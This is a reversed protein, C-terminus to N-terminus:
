SLGIHNLGITTTFLAFFALTSYRIIQQQVKQKFEIIPQMEGKFAILTKDISDFDKHMAKLDARVEKLTDKIENIREHTDQRFMGLEDHLSESIMINNSLMKLQFLIEQGTDNKDVM